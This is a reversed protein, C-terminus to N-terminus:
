DYFGKIVAKRWIYPNIGTKHITYDLVKNETLVVGKKKEQEVIQQLNKNFLTECENFISFPISYKFGKGVITYGDNANSKDEITDETDKIIYDNTHKNYPQTPDKKEM